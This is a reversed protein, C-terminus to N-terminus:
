KIIDGGRKFPRRRQVQVQEVEAEVVDGGIAELAPQPDVGMLKLLSGPDPELGNKMQESVLLVARGYLENVVQKFLAISDQKGPLNMQLVAANVLFQSRNVGLAAASREVEALVDPPVSITIVKMKSM